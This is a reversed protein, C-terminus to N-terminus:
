RIDDRLHEPSDQSGTYQVHDGASFSSEVQATTECRVTVSCVGWTAIRERCAEDRFYYQSEKKQHDNHSCRITASWRFKCRDRDSQSQGQNVEDANRNCIPPCM